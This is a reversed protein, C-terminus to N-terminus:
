LEDKAGGTQLRESRGCYNCTRRCNRVMFATKCAGPAAALPGCDDEMKADDECQEECGGCAKPCTKMMIGPNKECAGTKAWAECRHDHDICQHAPSMSPARVTETNPPKSSPKPQPQKQQPQKQKAQPQARARPRGPVCFRCARPCETKMFAANKTCEKQQAWLECKIDEDACRSEAAEPSEDCWGCTKLCHKAMFRRNRECQGDRKWGECDGVLDQCSGCLRCSLRCNTEMWARNSSCQGEAAWTTCFQNLDVCDDRNSSVAARAVTSCVGCSLQCKEQMYGKNTSCQGAKAWTQCQPSHDKCEAGESCAGCSRACHEDMYAKNSQCEGTKAWLSCDNFDDVCAGAPSTSARQSCLGCAEACSARMFAANSACEGQAAWAACAEDKEKNACSRSSAADSRSMRASKAASPAAPSAVKPPAVTRKCLDCSRPCETKMFNRNRKCEGKRTWDECDASADLCAVPGIVMDSNNLVKFILLSSGESITAGKRDTREAHLTHGLYVMREVKEKPKLVAVDKVDSSHIWNVKVASGYDNRITLPVTLHSFMWSQFEDATPTALKRADEGIAKGRSQLLIIPCMPITVGFSARKAPGVASEYTALISSPRGAQLPPGVDHMAATVIDGWWVGHWDQSWDAFPFPYKTRALSAECRRDRSDYMAILLHRKLKQSADVVDNLDGVAKVHRIQKQAREEHSGPTSPGRNDVRRQYSLPEDKQATSPQQHSPNQQRQRQWQQQQNHHQQQQQRHQGNTPSARPRSQRSDIETDYERRSASDVLTQHAEAIRKFKKEAASRESPDAVKDPHHTRALKYYARKITAADADRKVGLVQYHTESEAAAWAVAFLTLCRVLRRARPM